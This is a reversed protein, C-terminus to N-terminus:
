FFSKLIDELVDMSLYIHFFKRFSNNFFLRGGIIADFLQNILKTQNFLRIKIKM